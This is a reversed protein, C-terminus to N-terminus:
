GRRRPPPPGGDRGAGPRGEAAVAQGIAVARAVEVLRREMDRCRFYLSAAAFGFVVVFSYLVLDTGRGIGLVHAARTTLEPEVVAAVCGAAFLLALLRRGARLGVDDRHRLAWVLGVLIAAVLIVKIM